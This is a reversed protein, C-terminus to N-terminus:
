LGLDAALCSFSMWSGEPHHADSASGNPTAQKEEVMDEVRVREPLTGFRVHRAAAASDSASANDITRQIEM